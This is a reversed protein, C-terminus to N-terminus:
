HPQNNAHPRRVPSAHIALMLAKDTRVVHSETITFGHTELQRLCAKAIRQVQAPSPPEYVLLLTGRAKLCAHVRPLERRPDRWFLNVNVAVAHDFRGDELVADALSAQQLVTRGEAILAANRAHAARVATASRDIAVLRGKRLRQGLLVALTGNGCGIELVQVDPRPDLQDVAWSLRAPVALPSPTTRPRM